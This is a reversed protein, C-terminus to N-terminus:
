RLDREHIQDFLEQESLDIGIAYTLYNKYSHSNFSSRVRADVQNLLYPIEHGIHHIDREKWLMAIVKDLHRIDCEFGFAKKGPRYVGRWVSCGQEELFEYFHRIWYPQKINKDRMRRSFLVESKELLVAEGPDLALAINKHSALSAQLSKIVGCLVMGSTALSTLLERGEQQTLLNQTFLPGDILTFPMDKKIAYEREVYEMFTIPWSQNSDAEDQEESWDLFDQWTQLKKGEVLSTGTKALFTEPSDISRYSMGIVAAAFMQIGSYRLHQIAPTGDIAYLDNADIEVSEAVSSMDIRIGPPPFSVDFSEHPYHIMREDIFARAMPVAHNRVEEIANVADHYMGDHEILYSDDVFQKSRLARSFIGSEREM